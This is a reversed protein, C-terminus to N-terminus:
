EESINWSQGTYNGCTAMILQNNTGDNVIDLCKNGGSFQNQLRYSGERGTAQKIRWLQGTYNGCTAMIPQNNTGDNVIDLCMNDGSFQNQLRYFGQRRAV